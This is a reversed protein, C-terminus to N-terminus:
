LIPHRPLPYTSNIKTTFLASDAYKTLGYVTLRIQWEEKIIPARLEYVMCPKIIFNPVTTSKWQWVHLMKSFLKLKLM